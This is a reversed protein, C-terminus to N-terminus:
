DETSPARRSNSPTWRRSSTARSSATRTSGSRTARHGVTWTSSPARVFSLKPHERQLVDDIDDLAGEYKGIADRVVRLCHARLADPLFDYVLKEPRPRNRNSFTKHTM